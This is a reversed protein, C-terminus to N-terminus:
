DVKKKKDKQLKVHFRLATQHVSVHVFSDGITPGTAM